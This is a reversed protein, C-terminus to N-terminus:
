ADDDKREEPLYQGSAIYAAEEPTLLGNQVDLALETLLEPDTHCPCDPDLRCFPRDVTHTIEDEMEIVIPHTVTPDLTLNHTNM